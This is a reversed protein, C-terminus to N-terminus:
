RAPVLTLRYRTRAEIAPRTFLLPFFENRGWREHLNDYFPSGPQGSNGPGITVMSQDPNKFDTVLRYVAGVANVTGAGGQREIAPLDYAGVVSHPFESRNMRGWRWEAPNPGQTTTLQDVARRLGTVVADRSGKRAAELDAARQWTVYLAAAASTRDMVLDWGELMARAQEVQPDDGSWGRFLRQDEAAETNYSDRLMRLM